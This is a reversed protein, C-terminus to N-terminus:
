ATSCSGLTTLSQETLTLTSSELTIRAREATTQVDTLTVGQPLYEAVCLSIPQTGLALEVLRSVDLSGAGSTVQADTPTLVLSDATVSPTATAQYGIPLGFVSLEGTYTIENTGLEFEADRAAPDADAEALAIQLLANLAAQDLDVTGDVHGIPQTTDTPVGTAVVSVSAPVDNVSLAPATLEVREFSGTLYQVIVSAGGIAVDVDGTVGAPLGADIESAVRNQAYGRLGADVAFFIGVLAILAILTVLLGRAPRRRKPLTPSTM